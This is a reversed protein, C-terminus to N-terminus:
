SRLAELLERNLGPVGLALDVSSDDGDTDLVRNVVGWNEGGLGVGEADVLSLLCDSQHASSVSVPAM